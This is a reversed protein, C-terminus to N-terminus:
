RKALQHLLLEFRAAVADWGPLKAASSVAGESLARRLPPEDCLRALARTLGARDAPRVRLANHEHKLFEWLGGRAWSVVPLGSRLAEAAALGYSEYGSASVLVDARAFAHKLAPGALAGLLQVRRSGLEEALRRVGTAYARDRTPDGALALSWARGPVHLPRLAELLELQGKHPLLHSVCLMRLTTSATKRRVPPGLHDSGPHVVLAAPLKLSLLRESERKAQRSVFVAAHVSRLFAREAAASREQPALRVSTVHVLAVTRVRGALHRNLERYQAYGLEDEVVADLRKELLTAALAKPDVGAPTTLLEVPHGRRQLAMVLQRDVVDGGSPHRRASGSARPALLALKV